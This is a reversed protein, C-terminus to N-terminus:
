GLLEAIAFGVFTGLATGISGVLVAPLVLEPRGLGRALALATAGGGINAQSAIAALDPDMRLAIAAGFTIAGHLVLVVSVFALLQLGIRGLDAVAAVDCHAGIVALFLYVAFMGLPSTGRQRAIAPVQALVLAAVTLILMAPVAIGSTAAVDAAARSAWWVGTGLAVLLALQGPDVPDREADAETGAPSATSVFRHGSRRRLVRPVVITVVMWVATLGADVAVAAVYLVGTSVIDYQLAITNFNTSGGIYTAAFMGAMASTHEGFLGPDIVRLGVLVGSTTGLAGIGFLALLPLSVTAARRLDVQLVLWFIALPAVHEFIADYVLVPRESTSATPVVGLNAVIATVVIVVM